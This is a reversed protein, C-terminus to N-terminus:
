GGWRAAVVRGVGALDAHVAPEGDCGAERMIQAVTQAQGQGVELLLWGGPALARRPAQGVLRRMLALGQEDAYLAEAPECRLEPALSERHAPDVYPLNAVVVSFPVMDAPLADLLDGAFFSVTVGHAAANERAVELVKAFRDTAVVVADPREAALAIAVAGSGTGVDLIRPSVQGRLV